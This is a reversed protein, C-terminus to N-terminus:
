IYFVNIYLVSMSHQIWFHSVINKHLMGPVNVHVPDSVSSSVLDWSTVFLLIFLSFQFDPIIFYGFEIYRMGKLSNKLVFISLVIKCFWIRYYIITVLHAKDWSHLTLNGSSFDIHSARNLGFYFFFFFDCSGILLYLFFMPYFGIYKQNLGEALWSYFPLEEDRCFANVFIELKWWVPNKLILFCFHGSDGSRSNSPRALAILFFMFIFPVWVPFSSTFM